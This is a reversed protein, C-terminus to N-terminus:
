EEQCEPCPMVGDGSCNPCTMSGDGRDGDEPDKRTKTWIDFRVHGKGECTQCPKEKTGFCQDCRDFCYGCVKDAYMEDQTRLKECVKCKVGPEMEVTM